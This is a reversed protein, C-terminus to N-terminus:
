YENYIQLDQNADNLSFIQQIDVFTKTGYKKDLVTEDCCGKEYICTPM